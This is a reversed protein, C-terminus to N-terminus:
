RARAGNRRRPRPPRLRLPPPPPPPPLDRRTLPPARPTGRGRRRRWRPALSGSRLAGAGPAGAGAAPPASAGVKKKGKSSNAAAMAKAEKSKQVKPAQPLPGPRSLVGDAAAPGPRPRARGAQGGHHRSGEPASPQFPFSPPAPAPPPALGARQQGRGGEAERGCRSRALGRLGACLRARSRSSGRLELLVGRGAALAIGARGGPGRGGRGEQHAGIGPRPGSAAALQKPRAARRQLGWGRRGARDRRARQQARRAGRRAAAAMCAVCSYAGSSMRPRTASTVPPLLPKPSAIAHHAPPPPLPSALPLSPPCRPPRHSLRCRSPAAAPHLCTHSPHTALAWAPNCRERPPAALRRGVGGIGAGGQGLRM